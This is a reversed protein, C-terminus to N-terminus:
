GILDISFQREYVERLNSTFYVETCDGGHVGGNERTKCSGYVKHTTYM